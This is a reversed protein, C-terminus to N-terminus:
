FESIDRPITLDQRLLDRKGSDVVTVDAARAVMLTLRIVPSLEPM